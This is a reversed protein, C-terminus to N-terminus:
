RGTGTTGGFGGFGGFGGGFGQGQSAMKNFATQGGASNYDYNPSM